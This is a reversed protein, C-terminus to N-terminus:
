WRHFFLGDDPKPNDEDYETEQPQATALKANGHVAAEKTGIVTKAPNALQKRLLDQLSAGPISAVLELDGQESAQEKEKEKETELGEVRDSLNKVKKVVAANNSTIKVAIGDKINELKMYFDKLSMVEMM